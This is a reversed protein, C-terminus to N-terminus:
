DGTVAFPVDDGGRFGRSSEIGRGFAGPLRM